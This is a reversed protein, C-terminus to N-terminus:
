ASISPESTIIKVGEPRTELKGEKVGVLYKVGKKGALEVLRNTIIGDFVVANVGERGELTLMLKRVPVEDLTNGANDLLVANLSGNLGLLLKELKETEPTKAQVPEQHPRPTPPTPTPTTPITNDVTTVSVVPRREFVRQPMPQPRPNNRNDPANKRRLAQLIEKGTLEEVEKGDPARTIFELKLQEQLGRLIIDGGRDGDVFATLSKTKALEVLTRPVKAGGTSIVNKIGHRLLNLVDARGEVVILNQSSEVDPGCPLQDAGYTGAEAQRVQSLVADTLEQSEPVDSSLMRQLLDKARDIIQKRKASRTDEVKEVAITAACPGVKDVVEVASALIVTEVRDLSSPIIIKGSTKGGKAELDVEIRGIKGNKQLERLELDNGILGETQGLIAGIIDPKEVLGDISFNATVIYKVTDIYTKAM